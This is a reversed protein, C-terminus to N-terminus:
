WRRWEGDWRCKCGVTSASYAVFNWAETRLGHLYLFTQLLSSTRPTSSFSPCSVLLVTDGFFSLFHLRDREWSGMDRLCTLFYLGLRFASSFVWSFHPLLPLFTSVLFYDWVSSNLLSSPSPHPLGLCFGPCGPPTPANKSRKVPTRFCNSKLCLWM